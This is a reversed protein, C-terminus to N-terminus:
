KSYSWHGYEIFIRVTNITLLNLHKLKELCRYETVVLLFECKNIIKILEMEIISVIKFINM